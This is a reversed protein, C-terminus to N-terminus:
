QLKEYKNLLLEKKIKWVSAKYPVDYKINKLLKDAYKLLEM